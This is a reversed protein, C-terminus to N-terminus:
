SEQRPNFLQIVEAPEPQEIPETPLGARRLKNERILRRKLVEDNPDDCLEVSLLTSPFPQVGSFVRIAEVRAEDYNAAELIFATILKGQREDLMVAPCRDKLDTDVARLLANYAIRIESFETLFAAKWEQVEPDSM